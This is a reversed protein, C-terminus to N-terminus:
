AQTPACTRVPRTTTCRQSRFIPPALPYARTKGGKRRVTLTRYGRHHGLDAIDAGCVEAVRLGETLM